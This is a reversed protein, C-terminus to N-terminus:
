SLAFVTTFPGFELSQQLLEFDRILNANFGQTFCRSNEKLYQRLRHEEHLWRSGRATQDTQDTFEKRLATRNLCRFGHCRPARNEAAVEAEPRSPTFCVGLTVGQTFGPSFPAFYLCNPHNKTGFPCSSEAWPKLGPFPVGKVVRGTLACSLAHCCCLSIIYKSCPEIGREPRQDRM